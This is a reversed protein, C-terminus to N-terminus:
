AAAGPTLPTPPSASQREAEVARHGIAENRARENEDRAADAATWTGGELLKLKEALRRSERDCFDGFILQAEMHRVLSSKPRRALKESTALPVPHTDRFVRLDLLEAVLGADSQFLSAYCRITDIENRLAVFTMSM